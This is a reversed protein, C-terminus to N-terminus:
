RWVNCTRYYIFKLHAIGVRRFKVVAARRDHGEADVDAQVVVAEGITRKIPFQGADVEPQVGEIIVRSPAKRTASTVRSRGESAM